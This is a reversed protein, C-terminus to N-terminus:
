GLLRRAIAALSMADVSHDVLVTRAGTAEAWACAEPRDDFVLANAPEVGAHEFVRRYYEPGAKPIDVIDTGYLGGFCERVGMGRLYGDLEVSTEGSATHLAYGSDWL